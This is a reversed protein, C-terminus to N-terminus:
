TQRWGIMLEYPPDLPPSGLGDHVLAISKVDLFELKFDKSYLQALWMPSWVWMEKWPSGAFSYLGYHRTEDEGLWAQRWDLKTFFRQAAQTTFGTGPILFAIKGDPPLLRLINEKLKHQQEETELHNHLWVATILDCDGEPLGTKHPPDLADAQIFASKHSAANQSADQILAPSSDVGIVRDAFNLLENTLDGAGCGLDLALGVPREPCVRRVAALFMTRVLNYYKAALTNDVKFNTYGKWTDETM